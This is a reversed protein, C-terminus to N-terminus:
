RSEILSSSAFGAMRRTDMSAADRLDVLLRDAGGDKASVLEKVLGEIQDEMKHTVAYHALKVLLALPAHGNNLLSAYEKLPAGSREKQTLGSFIDIQRLVAEEKLAQPIKIGQIDIKGTKLPHYSSTQAIVYNAMRQEWDAKPDTIVEGEVIGVSSCKSTVMHCHEFLPLAGCSAYFARSTKEISNLSPLQIQKDM